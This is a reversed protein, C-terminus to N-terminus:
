NTVRFGGQGDGQSIGLILVFIFLLVIPNCKPISQQAELCLKVQLLDKVELSALLTPASVM